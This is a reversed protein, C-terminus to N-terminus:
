DFVSKEDALSFGIDRENTDDRNAAMKKPRHEGMAVANSGIGFVDAGGGFFGVPTSSLLGTTPGTWEARAAIPM